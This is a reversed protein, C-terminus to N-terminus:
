QASKAVLNAAFLIVSITSTLFTTAFIRISADFASFLGNMAFSLPQKRPNIANRSLEDSSITNVANSASINRQM